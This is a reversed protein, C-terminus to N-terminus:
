DKMHDVDHTCFQVKRHGIGFKYPYIMIGSSRYAGQMSLKKGQLILLRQLTSFRFASMVYYVNQHTPVIIRSKIKVNRPITTLAQMPTM